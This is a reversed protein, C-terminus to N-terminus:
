SYKYLVKVGSHALTSYVFLFMPFVFLDVTFSPLSETQRQSPTYPQLLDTLYPSSWSANFFM